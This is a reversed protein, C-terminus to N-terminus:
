HPIQHLICETDTYIAITFGLLFATFLCLIINGNTM